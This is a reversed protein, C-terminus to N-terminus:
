DGDPRGPGGTPGLHKILQLAPSAPGWLDPFEELTSFGLGSYFARTAAYGRDPHRASLTKVQLFRIKQARLAREAASLMLRGIGRRHYEPLVAIVYIEAADPGHTVLTLVGVIQGTVADEALVTPARDATMVYGNVADPVGFWEPLAALVERCAPGSGHDQWRLKISSSV